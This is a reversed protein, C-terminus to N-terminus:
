KHCPDCHTKYFYHCSLSCFTNQVTILTTMNRSFTGFYAYLPTIRSLESLITASELLGLHFSRSKKPSIFSFVLELSSLSFFNLWLFSAGLVSLLQYVRNQQYWDKSIAQTLDKSQFSETALDQLLLSHSNTGKSEKCCPEEYWTIATRQCNRQKPEPSFLLFFAANKMAQTTWSEM